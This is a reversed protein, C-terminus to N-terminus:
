CGKSNAPTAVRSFTFVLQDKRKGEGATGYGRAEWVRFMAEAQERSANRVPAAKHIAETVTLQGLGSLRRFHYDFEDGSKNCSKLLAQVRPIHAKFYEILLIASDVTKTDVQGATVREGFVRRLEHFVLCLRNAYEWLKRYKAVLWPPAEKPLSGFHDDNGWAFLYKWAAPQFTLLLPMEEEFLARMKQKYSAVLGAPVGEETVRPRVPEPYSILFRHLLGDDAHGGYNLLALSEPVMTGAVAVFPREIFVRESTKRGVSVPNHSWYSCWDSRDANGRKYQGMQKCWGDLEDRIFLVAGQQLDVKLSEDTTDTLFISPQPGPDPNTERDKAHLVKKKKWERLLEKQYDVFGSQVFKLAPTKGGGSLDLCATWVCSSVTHGEKVKLWKKARGIAAGAVSLLSCAPIDLACVISHAVAELFKRLFPPYAELPFPPPRDNSVSVTALSEDEGALDSAARPPDNSVSVTALREPGPGAALSKEEPSPSTIAEHGDGNASPKISLRRMKPM